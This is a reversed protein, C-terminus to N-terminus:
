LRLFKFFHVNTLFSFASLFHVSIGVDPLVFLGKEQM